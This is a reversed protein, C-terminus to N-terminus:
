KLQNLIDDLINKAENLLKNAEAPSKADKAEEILEKAQNLKEMLEDTPYEGLMHEVEIILKGIHNMRAIIVKEIVPVKPKNNPPPPPPPPPVFNYKQMVALISTAGVSPIESKSSYLFDSSGWYIYSNILYSGNYWNGFVIDLFGDNNLDSITVGYAGLTPLETKSSYESSSSGWYIYSPINHSLLSDDYYNAFVIDPFSDRNLDAVSVGIAGHTVLEKKNSSSYGASSGWYIYSTTNYHPSSDQWENAFIIDPWGDGNLDSISLGVVGKTPLETKNLYNCEASGWYIYSNINYHGSNDVHNSFIIDPYSDNNLDSVTAGYVGVTAIDKRNSISYGTASGWYIYSNTHKNGSGDQHNCFIIDGWGDGNLDSVSVGIAANTPLETMNSTSFGLDSGWYIYSNINYNFFDNHNNSFVIDPWSDKNLDVIAIGNASHTPLETRNSESYGALSGWYVYSNIDFNSLSSQQNVIVIDPFGDKNLDCKELTYSPIIIYDVDDISDPNSLSYAPVIAGFLFMIGLFIPVIKM